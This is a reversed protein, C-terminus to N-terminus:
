VPATPAEIGEGDKGAERALFGIRFTGSREVLRSCGREALKVVM